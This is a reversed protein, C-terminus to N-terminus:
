NYILPSHHLMILSSSIKKLNLRGSAHQLSKVDLRDNINLSTLVWDSATFSLCGLGSGKRKEKNRCKKIEGKGKPRKAEREDWGYECHWGKVEVAEDILTNHLDILNCEYEKGHKRNRFLFAAM